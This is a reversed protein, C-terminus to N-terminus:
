YGGNAQREAQEKRHALEQEVINMYGILFAAEDSGM